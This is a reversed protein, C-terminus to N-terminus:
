LLSFVNEPQQTEKSYSCWLGKLAYKDVKVKYIEQRDWIFEGYHGSHVCRLLVAQVGTFENSKDLNGRETESLNDWVSNVAFTILIRESFHTM